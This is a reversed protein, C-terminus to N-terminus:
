PRFVIPTFSISVDRTVPRALALINSFEPLSINNLQMRSTDGVFSDSGDQVAYDTIRGNGDLSLTLVVSSRLEVPVLNADAHDAYVVPVEYGVVASRTGITLALAAFLIVSSLLGGTAPITVPRMIEDLRSKWQNWLFRARSGHTQKIARQQQSAQVLLRERLEPPAAPEPLSRLTTRLSDAQEFYVACSECRELHADIACQEAPRLTRDLYDSSQRKASWCRM